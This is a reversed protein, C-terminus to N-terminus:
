ANTFPALATTKVSYGSSFIKSQRHSFTCRFIPASYIHFSVLGGCRHHVTFPCSQPVSVFSNFLHILNQIEALDLKTGFYSMRMKASRSHYEDPCAARRSETTANSPGSPSAQIPQPSYVVRSVHWANRDEASFLPNFECLIKRESSHSDLSVVENSLKLSLFLLTHIHFICHLFYDGM